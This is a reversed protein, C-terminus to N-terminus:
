AQRSKKELAKVRKKLLYIERSLEDVDKQKPIHLAGLMDEVVENRSLTSESMADLMQGLSEIYERSQFLKMYHGELIKIWMQYYTKSDEPLEGGEAMEAVKEQLVTFSKSVPLTLLRQFEAMATQFINNKDVARLWKEQHLRTLGLQPVNLFRRFESEYIDAWTRFINEDLEEFTYAEASGGIRGAQKFLKEQVKLFGGLSTMAAKALIDPMAGAGKFLSEMAEPRSMASALATFTKMAADMSARTRDTRGKGTAGKGTTERPQFADSAGKWFQFVNNMLDNTANMWTSFLDDPGFTEESEKGM